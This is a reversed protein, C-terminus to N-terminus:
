LEVHRGEEAAYQEFRDGAAQLLEPTMSLYVQTGSINVHGLYTSLKPLLRQVDAGQRYWATLRHVAFTHRLDHLRPQYRANERSIGAHSCLRRFLKTFTDQNLREGSRSTFFPQEETPSANTRQKMYESLAQQLENGFPVLRSKYFKTMRVTIVRQKLDVDVDNLTIAERIRMGTGYLLLLVAKTTMPESLTKYRYTMPARLLARIEEQEYIYPALSAGWKPVETPMPNSAVFGRSHAYLYLGKLADYRKRRSNTVPGDGDVFQKIQKTTALSAKSSEDVFRGYARLICGNSAFKEGLSQRYEIYKDILKRMNM